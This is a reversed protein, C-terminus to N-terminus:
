DSPQSNENGAPHMLFDFIYRVLIGPYRADDDIRYILIRQEPRKAYTSLRDKAFLRNQAQSSKAVVGANSGGPTTTALTGILRLLAQQEPADPSGQLFDSISICTPRAGSTSSQEHLVYARGNRMVPWSGAITM